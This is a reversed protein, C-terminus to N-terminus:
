CYWPSYTEVELFTNTISAVGTPITMLTSDSVISIILTIVLVTPVSARCCCRPNNLNICRRSIRTSRCIPFHFTIHFLPEWVLTKPDNCRITSIDKNMPRFNMRFAGPNTQLHSLRYLEINNSSRIAPLLGFSNRPRITTKHFAVLVCLHLLRTKVELFEAVTFEACPTYESM